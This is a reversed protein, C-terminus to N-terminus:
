LCNRTSGIPSPLRELQVEEPKTSGIRRIIRAEVDFAVTEDREFMDAIGEDQEHEVCKAQDFCCKEPTAINKMAHEHHWWWFLIIMDYKCTDASKWSVM